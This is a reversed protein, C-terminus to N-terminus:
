SQTVSKWKDIIKNEPGNLSCIEGPLGCKRLIGMCGNGSNIGDCFSGFWLLGLAIAMMSGAVPLHM